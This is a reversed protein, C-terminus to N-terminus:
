RGAAMRMPPKDTGDRGELKRVSAELLLSLQKVEHPTVLGNRLAESRSEILRELAVIEEVLLLKQQDEISLESLFVSPAEGWGLVNVHYIASEDTPSESLRELKAWVPGFDVVHVQVYGCPEHDIDCARYPIFGNSM